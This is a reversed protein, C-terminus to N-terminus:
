PSKELFSCGVAGRGETDAGRGGEGAGRGGAAAEGRAGGDHWVEEEPGGGCEGCEGGGPSYILLVLLLFVSACSPCSTRKVNLLLNNELVKIHM